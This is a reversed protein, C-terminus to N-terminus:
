ASVQERLISVTMSLMLYIGSFVLFTLLTDQFAKPYAAADPAVPFVSISLYLSQRNAEIRATEQQQLAQALIMQRTELDAQAVVLESSIRALSVDGEGDATTMGGRLDAIINELREINQRSVEVRTENPRAVSLLEALRLREEQLQLEFTSIQTFLTSVEAETSLVGRQEQLELVRQQAQIMREEAEIYSERAGSMQDERLRQSMHDVREEAYGILAEAFRQSTEPDAARVEMRILGETPDYGVDLNRLYVRYMDEDTAGEALRTLPDIGPASFHGRFDHEEDLRLMAERSELYSQVAISDQQTAFSTGGFLSGLGGAAGASEAKQLVFETSTAYLPTAMRFFYFAAIATPLLVFFLLRVGLLALRRRRRRAIDRQVNMIEAARTAADIPGPAMAPKPAAPESTPREAPLNPTAQEDPTDSVILELMNTRAFPDIGRARLQRVADHDSTATIGHKLATRRAMRLQRGTLGEAKIAAIERDEAPRAGPTPAVDRRDARPTDTSPGLADGAVPDSPSPPPPPADAGSEDDAAIRASGDDTDTGGFAGTDDGDDSDGFRDGAATFAADAEDETVRALNGGADNGFGRRIRFKRGKPRMTM